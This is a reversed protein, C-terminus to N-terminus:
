MWGKHYAIDMLRQVENTYRELQRRVDDSSFGVPVFGRAIDALTQTAAHERDLAARWAAEWQRKNEM